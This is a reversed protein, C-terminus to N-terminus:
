NSMELMTHKHRLFEPKVVGHHRFGVRTRLISLQEAGRQHLKVVRRTTCWGGVQFPTLGVESGHEVLEIRVLEESISTPSRRLIPNYKM